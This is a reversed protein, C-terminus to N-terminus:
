NSAKPYLMDRLGDGLLNLGIIMIAMISSIIIAVHPAELLINKGMALMSGWSYSSGGLGLFGLISESIVV